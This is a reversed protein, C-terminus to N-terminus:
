LPSGPRVIEVGHRSAIEDLTDGSVSKGVKALEDFYGVM